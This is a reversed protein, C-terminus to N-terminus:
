EGKWFEVYYTYVSWQSRKEQGQRVTYGNRALIAVLADRDEAKACDIKVHGTM